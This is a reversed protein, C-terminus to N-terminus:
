PKKETKKHNKNFFIGKLDHYADEFSYRIKKDMTEFQSGLKFIINSLKEEKESLNDNHQIEETLDMELHKIKIKTGM